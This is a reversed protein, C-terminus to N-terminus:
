WAGDLPHYQYLTHVSACTDPLVTIGPAVVLWLLYFGGYEAWTTFNTSVLSKFDM